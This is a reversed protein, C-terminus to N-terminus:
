FTHWAEDFTSQWQEQNLWEPKSFKGHNPFRMEAARRFKKDIQFVVLKHVSLVETHFWCSSALQEDAMGYDVIANGSWRSSFEDHIPIPHLNHLVAVVSIWSDEWPENFDGVMLIRGCWDVSILLEEALGAQTQQLQGTIDPAAYSNIILLDDVAVGLISGKEHGSDFLVRASMSCKVLTLVGKPVGRSMYDDSVGVFIHYGLHSWFRELGDLQRQNCAAEQVCIIAPRSGEPKSQVFHSLRWLGQLGAVNLSWVFEM